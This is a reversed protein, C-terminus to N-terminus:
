AVIKNNHGTIIMTEVHSAVEV